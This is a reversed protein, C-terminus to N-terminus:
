LDSPGEATLCGSAAVPLTLEQHWGSSVAPKTYGAWHTLFKLQASQTVKVM